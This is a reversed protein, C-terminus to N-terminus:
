AATEAAEFEELHAGHKTHLARANTKQEATMAALAEASLDLGITAYLATIEAEWDEGLRAFDVEAVPGTFKALAEETRAQRLTAKREWETEIAALDAADSQITMQNAVLSAASRTVKDPARRSVVVRADPFQALLEALDEGFQPVKMVRPQHANGHNAADTALTRAFERYVPASDRQESFRVFSPIQWQAEYACHDFAMALWGLEEDARAAGFPHLTDLWPDLKRALFLKLGGRIPRLDPKEPVPHWSDCFRTASHAPDAALLRHIRTTGSRMQGVVIIPPALKTELLEPRKRWLEGLAFRQQIARTILGYAFAKGISNLRAEDTVSYCLKELRLRWDAIDEGSRGGAEDGAQFGKSGAALLEHPDLSVEDIWGREWGKAIWGDIRDVLPARALPHPRPPIPM